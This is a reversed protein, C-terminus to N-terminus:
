KPATAVIQFVISLHPYQERAVAVGWAIEDLTPPMNRHKFHM